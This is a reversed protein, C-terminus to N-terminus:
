HGIDQQKIQEIVWKAGEIFAVQEDLYFCQMRSSNGIKEDSPLEIPTLGSIFEVYFTPIYDEEDLKLAETFAANWTKMVQDETYLKM